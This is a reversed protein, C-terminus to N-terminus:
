EINDNRHKEGFNSFLMRMQEAILGIAFFLLGFFISLMGMYYAVNLRTLDSAIFSLASLMFMMITLLLFIRFPDFYLVQFLIFQLTRLSDRFMHVKSSGIRQEYPIPLHCITRKTLIYSLTQSTTFSFTECLNDFYKMVTQRSFIRLGSNIDDIKKGSSFEVIFRLIHRLVSKSFSERYYAGTRAGIVLDYGEKYAELLRPIEEIPYTGDADTIVITEYKAARIGDKLSRGYGLNTPHKVVRAGNEHAHLNTQDTSGDDVVIIEFEEVAAADTLVTRARCITEKIASEENLAPIVVSINYKKDTCEEM